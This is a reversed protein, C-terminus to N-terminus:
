FRNHWANTLKSVFNKKWEDTLEWEMNPDAALREEATNVIVQLEDSTVYRTEIALRAKGTVSKMVEGMIGSYDFTDLPKDFNDFLSEWMSGVQPGFAM